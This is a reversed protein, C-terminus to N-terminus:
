ILDRAQDYEVATYTNISGMIINAKINISIHLYDHLLGTCKDRIYFALLAVVVVAVLSFDM